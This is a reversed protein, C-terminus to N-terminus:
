RACRIGMTPDSSSPVVGLRAGNDLSAPPNSFAGGRYVRQGSAANTNVCNTCPVPYTGFFDMTPEAVSGAFDSHGYLADGRPSESGVVLSMPPPMPCSGPSADPEMTGGMGVCNYWAYTSDITPPGISWPYQRQAAGGGAAFNWEAETPLRSGDWACFAFAVYWDVCNMPVHPTTTAVGSPPAFSPSCATVANILAGQSTPLPWGSQWGTGSVPPYAGSGAAPAGGDYSAVFKEFREVTVEFRDLAFYGALTAPASADVYSPPDFSRTFGVGGDGAMITISQCCDLNGGPGCTPQLGQCSPPDMCVGAACYGADCQWGFQCGGTTVAGDSGDGADSADSADGADHADSSADSADGVGMTADSGGEADAAGELGADTGVPSDSATEGQTDATADSGAEVTSDGQADGQGSAEATADSAHADGADDVIDLDSIGSIVQCAAIMALALGATAWARAWTM